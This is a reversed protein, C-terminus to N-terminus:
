PTDKNLFTFIHKPFSVKIPKVTFLRAYRVESKLSVTKLDHRTGICVQVGSAIEPIYKIRKKYQHGPYSSRIQKLINVDVGRGTPQM